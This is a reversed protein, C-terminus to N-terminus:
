RELLVMVYSAIIFSSILLTQFDIHDLNNHAIGPKAINDTNICTTSSLHLSLLLKVRADGRVISLGGSTGCSRRERTRVM